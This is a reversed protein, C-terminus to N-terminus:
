NSTKIININGMWGVMIIKMEREVDNNYSFHSIETCEKM